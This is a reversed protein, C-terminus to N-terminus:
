LLIIPMANIHKRNSEGLQELQGLSDLSDVVMSLGDIKAEGDAAKRRLRSAHAPPHRDRLRLDRQITTSKSQNAYCHTIQNTAQGLLSKNNFNFSNTMKM